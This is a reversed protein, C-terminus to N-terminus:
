ARQAEAHFFHQAGRFQGTAGCVRFHWRHAAQIGTRSAACITRLPRVPVRWLEMPTLQYVPPPAGQGEEGEFM